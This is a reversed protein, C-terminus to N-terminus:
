FFTLSVYRTVETFYESKSYKCRTFKLKRQIIYHRLFIFIKYMKLDASYIWILLIYHHYLWFINEFKKFKRNDRIRRIDHWCIYSWFQKKFKLLKKIFVSLKLQLNSTIVFIFLPLIHHLAHGLYHIVTIWRRQQLYNCDEPKSRPAMWYICQCKARVM